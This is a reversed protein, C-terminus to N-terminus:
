TCTSRSPTAHSSVAWVTGRRDPLTPTGTRMWINRKFNGLRTSCRCATARGTACTSSGPTASRSAHVVEAFVGGVGAEMEEQTAQRGWQRLFKGNSTSCWSAGTATATPSTSTATRGSGRRHRRAQHLANRGANLPTGNRTGDSTDFVGKKGIQLLLKGDHTYKQIMGDGNATIWINNDRDVCCSHVTGPPLGLRGM